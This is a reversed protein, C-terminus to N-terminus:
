DALVCTHVHCQRHQSVICTGVFTPACAYTRLKKVTSRSSASPLRATSRERESHAFARLSLRSSRALAASCCCTKDKQRAGSQTGGRTRQRGGGAHAARGREELM